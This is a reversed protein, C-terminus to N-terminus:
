VIAGKVTDRTTDVSVDECSRLLDIMSHASCNCVEGWLRYLAGGRIDLAELRRLCWAADVSVPVQYDRGCRLLDLLAIVAGSHGDALSNLAHIHSQGDENRLM